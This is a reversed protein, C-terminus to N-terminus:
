ISQNRHSSNLDQYFYWFTGSHAWLCSCVHLYIGILYQHESKIWGSYTSAGWVPYKFGIVTLSHMYFFFLFFTASPSILRHVCNSESLSRIHLFFKLSCHLHEGSFKVQQKHPCWTWSLKHFSPILNSSFTIFLTALSALILNWLVILCCKARVSTLDIGKIVDAAAPWVSNKKVEWLPRQWILCSM